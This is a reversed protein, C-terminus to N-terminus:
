AGIQPQSRLAKALDGIAEPVFYCEGPIAGVSACTCGEGCPETVQREVIVGSRESLDQLTGGDVDAPEPNRHADLVLAGFTALKTMADAGAKVGDMPDSKAKLEAFRRCMFAAWNTTGTILGASRAESEATMMHGVTNFNVESNM